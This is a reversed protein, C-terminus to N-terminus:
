AIGEIFKIRYQQYKSRQNENCFRRFASEHLEGDEMTISTGCMGGKWSGKEPGMEKDFSLNLSRVVKQRCFLGLWKFYGEGFKWAREHIQTTVVVRTGDFDECMFSVAPCEEEAKHQEEFNSRGGKDSLQTYFHEGARGYLSFRVFRWQTWPLFWSKSQTTESDHTQAGLFLQLFGDNLSFGYERPFTEDYWNRGMREVTAQDWSTVVHRIAFPSLLSPLNIRACYGLMYITLTNCTEEDDGGGSSWVCRWPNWGAKAYTIPGFHKDNDTLRGM